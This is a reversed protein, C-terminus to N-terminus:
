RTSASCWCCAVDLAHWKEPCGAVADRLSAPVYVGRRLPVWTGSRLARRIAAKNCGAARAQAATFPGSVPLRSADIVIDEWSQRCPVDCTRCM